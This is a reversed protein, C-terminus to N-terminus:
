RKKYVYKGVKEFGFKEMVKPLRKEYEATQILVMGGPKLVRKMEELAKKKNSVHQLVELMIVRDFVENKFPLNEASAIIGYKEKPKIREYIRLV